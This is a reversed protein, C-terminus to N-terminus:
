EHGGIKSAEGPTTEDPPTIGDRVYNAKVVGGNIAKLLQHNAHASQQAKEVGAGITGGSPTKIDRRIGHAYFAAIISPAGAILAIAVDPWGLAALLM